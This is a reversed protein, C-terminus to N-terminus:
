FKLHVRASEIERYAIAREEGDVNVHLTDADDPAHTVAGVLKKGGVVLEVQHGETRRFQRPTVLKRSLGPTTVELTYTGPFPDAEDLATSVQRSIDGITDSSVGGPGDPLDVVVRVVTKAGAPAVKVDEIILGEAEALPEVLARVASERSSDAM